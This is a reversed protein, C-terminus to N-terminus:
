NITYRHGLKSWSIIFLFNWPYCSEVICPGISQVWPKIHYINLRSWLTQNWGVEVISLYVALTHYLSFRSFHISFKKSQYVVFPWVLHYCSVISRLWLHYLRRNNINSILTQLHNWISYLWVFDMHCLSKVALNLSCRLSTLVKARLSYYQLTCHQADSCFHYPWLLGTWMAFIIHMLHVITQISGTWVSHANFLNVNFAFQALGGESTTQILIALLNSLSVYYNQWLGNARLGM